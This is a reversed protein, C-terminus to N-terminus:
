GRWPSSTGTRWGREAVDVVGDPLFPGGGLMQVVEVGDRDSGFMIRARRVIQLLERDPHDLVFHIAKKTSARNREADPLDPDACGDHDAFRFGGNADLNRDLCLTDGMNTSSPVFADLRVANRITWPVSLLIVVVLPLAVGVAVRRWGLRLSWLAGALGALLVAAFPRM